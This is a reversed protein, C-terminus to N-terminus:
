LRPAEAVDVVQDAPEDQERLAALVHRHVDAVRLLERQELQRLLLELDGARRALDDELRQRDVIRLLPLGVDRARLLHEAPFGLDLELLPEPAHDGGESSLRNTHLLRPPRAATSRTAAPRATGAALALRWM